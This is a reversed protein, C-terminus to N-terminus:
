APTVDAAPTLETEAREENPGRGPALNKATNIIGVHSFAQPFNGLQRRGVPDYEEALLGVDNRIALVREFIERAEDFRGMLALNDALWLTCALFTGEGPPLGDPASDSRYRLVYGDVMLERQVAEVTAVVRPDDIPLFGVLPIQLLSADLEDSGYFQVFSQRHTNFGNACVDAHIEQRLRKLAETPIDLGYTEICKITRDIAVWCMVTSHVYRRDEGRQEWIGSGPDRWHKELYKCLELQIRWANDDAELGHTRASHLADIVEGYVDAQHQTYAANGIRVPQSGGFGPLWPLAAESLRREGSLSYMIQL